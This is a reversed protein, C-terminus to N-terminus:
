TIENHSGIRTEAASRLNLREGPSKSNGCACLGFSEEDCAYRSFSSLPGTTSMVTM